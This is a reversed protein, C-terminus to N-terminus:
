PAPAALAARLGKEEVSLALALAADALKRTDEDLPVDTRPAVMGAITASLDRIAPALASSKAMGQLASNNEVFAPAASQAVATYVTLGGYGAGNWGARVYSTALEKGVTTEALEPSVARAILGVAVPARTRFALMGAAVPAYLRSSDRERSPPLDAKVFADIRTADDAEGRLALITLANQWTEPREGSGLVSRAYDVQEASLADIDDFPITHWVGTLLAEFREQDLSPANGPPSAGTAPLGPDNLLVLDEPAAGSVPGDVYAQCENTTLGSSNPPIRQAICFLVRLREGKPDNAISCGERVHGKGAVHGQEHAWVSPYLGNLAIAIPYTNRRACGAMGPLGACTVTNFLFIEGDRNALGGFGLTTDGSVFDKFLSADDVIARLTYNVGTCAVDAPYTSGDENSGAPYNAVRILDSMGKLLAKAETETLAFEPHKVITLPVDAAHARGAAVLAALAIVTSLSSRPM